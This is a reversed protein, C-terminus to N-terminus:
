EVVGVGGIPDSGRTGRGGRTPPRSSPLTLFASVSNVPFFDYLIREVAWFLFFAMVVPFASLPFGYAPFGCTRNSSPSTADATVDHRNGDNERKHRDHRVRRKASRVLNVDVPGAADVPAALRGREGHPQKRCFMKGGGLSRTRRSMSMFTRSRLDSANKALFGVIFDRFIDKAPSDSSSM